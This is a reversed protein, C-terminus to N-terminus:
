ENTITQRVAELGYRFQERRDPTDTVDHTRGYEYYAAEFVMVQEDTPFDLLLRAAKALVATTATVIGGLEEWAELAETLQTRDVKM